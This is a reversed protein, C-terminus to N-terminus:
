RPIRVSSRARRQRRSPWPRVGGGGLELTRGDEIADLSGLAEHRLEARLITV